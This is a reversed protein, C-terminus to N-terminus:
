QDRVSNMKDIIEEDTLHSFENSIWHENRHNKKPRGCEVSANGGPYYRYDPDISTRSDAIMVYTSPCLISYVNLLM